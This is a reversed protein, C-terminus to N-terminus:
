AKWRGIAILVVNLVGSSAKNIQLSWANTSTMTIIDRIADRTAVVGTGLASFDIVPNTLYVAPMAVNQNTTVALNFGFDRYCIMTGDSYKTYYGNVNKGSEIILASLFEEVNQGSEMLVQRAKTRFHLEDFGNGNDVQYVADKVAM